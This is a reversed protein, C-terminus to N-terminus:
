RVNEFQLEAMQLRSFGHIVLHAAVLFIPLNAADTLFTPTISRSM